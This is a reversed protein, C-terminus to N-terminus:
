HGRLADFGETTAGGRAADASAPDRMRDYFRSQRSTM